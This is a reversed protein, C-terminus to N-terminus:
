LELNNKDKFELYIVNRNTIEIKDRKQIGTVLRISIGFASIEQILLKMAYPIFLKAYDVSDNRMNSKLINKSPNICSILGTYKCVYVIFKDAREMFSEKLFLACGHALIADREMEGIRLGM